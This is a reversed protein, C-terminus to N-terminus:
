GLMKMMRGLLKEATEGSPAEDDVCLSVTDFELEHDSDQRNATFSILREELIKCGRKDTKPLIM